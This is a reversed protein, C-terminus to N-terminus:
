DVRGCCDLITEPASHRAVQVTEEREWTYSRIDSVSHEHNRELMSNGDKVGVDNPDEFAEEPKTRAPAPRM